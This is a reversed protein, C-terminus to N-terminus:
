PGCSVIAGFARDAAAGSSAFTRVALVALNVANVKTAILGSVTGHISAVTVCANINHSFTVTYVGTTVHVVQQVGNSHVIVGTALASVTSTGFGASQAHGAGVAALTLVGAVSLRAALAALEKGFM